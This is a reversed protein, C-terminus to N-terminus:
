PTPATPCEPPMPSGRAQPQRIDGQHAVAHGGIHWMHGRVTWGRTETRCTHGWIDCPHGSQALLSVPSLGLSGHRPSLWGEDWRPCLPSTPRCFKQGRRAVRAGHAAGPSCGMGAGPPPTALHPRPKPSGPRSQPRPESRLPRPRPRLPTALSPAPTVVDATPTTVAPPPTAPRPPAHGPASRM